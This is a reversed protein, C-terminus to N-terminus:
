KMDLLIPAKSGSSGLFVVKSNSSGALSKLADIQQLRLLQETIHQQVIREYDDTAQADIRKTIAKSEAAIKDTESRAETQVKSRAVEAQIEIMKRKAEAETQAIVFKMKLAAQEAELKSNIAAQIPEPLKVNRILIAELLIHRDKIASEVGQRIEREILERQTSYIEEPQYRGVVRRAQSRVTPGLLVAYYEPGLEQDLKVVEDKIIRYRVSADLNIRLGNSALVELEENKEQSRSDYNTVRDFFGVFWRGEQLPEPKVGDTTWRVGMQGTGITALSCASSAGALAALAM